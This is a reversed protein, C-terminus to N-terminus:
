LNTNQITLLKKRSQQIYLWFGYFLIGLVLLLGFVGWLGRKAKSTAREDLLTYSFLNGYLEKHKGALQLFEQWEAWIPLVQCGASWKDVTISNNHPTTGTHINIGYLGTTERGNMFDLIADRNYDRIITVPKVQMFEKTTFGFRVTDILQWADVYQGGKLIAAGLAEMPNNLWYTGPDTSAKYARFNLNKTEDYWFVLITDDFTNATTNASRLGVINLKQPETYVVYGWAKMYQAIQRVRKKTFEKM